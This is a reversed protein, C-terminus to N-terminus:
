YTSRGPGTQYRHNSPGVNQPSPRLCSVLLPLADFAVRRSVRGAANREDVWGIRVLQECGKYGRALGRYRLNAM